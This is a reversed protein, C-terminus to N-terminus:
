RMGERRVIFRRFARRAAVFGLGSWLAGYLLAYALEAGSLPRFGGELLLLCAQTPWLYFVPSELLGVRDLVPLQAVLVFLSSPLLFANISDYRAIAVFGLLTYLTGTLLVGAVVPLWDLAPGHVLLVIALAEALGLATLSLVKAALYEGDRLPTVVLAELVGEGKELLVLGSVFYFTTVLLNLFLFPPFWTAQGSAPLQRLLVVWVLAVLVGAALFGQRVQLRLDCRLAAAFRTM